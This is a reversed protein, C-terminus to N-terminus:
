RVRSSRSSSLTPLPIGLPISAHVPWIGCSRGSPGRPSLLCSPPASDLNRFVRRRYRQGNLVHLASGTLWRIRTTRNFPQSRITSVAMQRHIRTRPCTHKRGVIMLASFRTFVVRNERHNSVHSFALLSRRDNSFDVSVSCTHFGGSKLTVRQTKSLPSPSPIAWWSIQAHQLILANM